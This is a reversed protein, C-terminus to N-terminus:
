VGVDPVAGEIPLGLVNPSHDLVQMNSGRYLSAMADPAITVALEDHRLEYDRFATPSTAVRFFHTGDSSRCLMGTLGEAPEAEVLTGGYRVRVAALTPRAFLQECLSAARELGAPTLVVSKAKTAPDHIFGHQYLRDMAAWDMSKWARHEDHITLYLLGLVADDVKQTDIEM